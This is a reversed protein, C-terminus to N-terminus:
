PRPTPATEWQAALAEAQEWTFIAGERNGETWTKPDGVLVHPMNRLAVGRTETRNGFTPPGGCGAFGCPHGGGFPTNAPGGELLVPGQDTEIFDLTCAVKEAGFLDLYAQLSRDKAVRPSTSRRLFEIDMYRPWMGLDRAAAAIRSARERVELAMRADTPGAEGSWSYYYSVGVVEGDEIFARWEAPWFGSGELPTGVRHPDQALKFRSAQVWPRAVFVAGGGPGQAVAEVTRQDSVTLRRRNGKRSWGPGVELEAGFRVEPAVPGAVGAGALAKLNSPGCRVNRVMWGEPIDDMASFLKEDLEEADIGRPPMVVALGEAAAEDDPSISHAEKAAIARAIGKISRAAARGSALGSLDLSGSATSMEDEDLRLIEVAPVFPVGAIDAIALWHRLDCADFPGRRGEAFQEITVWSGTEEAHQRAIRGFDALNAAANAGKLATAATAALLRGARRAAADDARVSLGTVIQQLKRIPNM